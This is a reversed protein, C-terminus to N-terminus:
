VKLHVFEHSIKKVFLLTAEGKSLSQDKSYSMGERHRMFTRYGLM